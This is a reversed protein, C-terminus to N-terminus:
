IIVYAHTAQAIDTPTHTFHCPAEQKLETTAATQSLCMSSKNLRYLTNNSDNYLHQSITNPPYIPLDMPIGAQAYNPYSYFLLVIFARVGLVATRHFGPCNSCCYLSLGSMTAFVRNHAVTCLSRNQLIQCASTSLLRTVGPHRHSGTQAFIPVGPAGPSLM